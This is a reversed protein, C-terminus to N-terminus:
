KGEAKALADQLNIYAAVMSPSFEVDKAKETRAMFLKIAEYMDRFTEESYKLELMGNTQQTM